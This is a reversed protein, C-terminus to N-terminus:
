KEIAIETETVKTIVGDISAHYRAGLRGEPIDAVLRGKKVKDGPSVVAKAPAGIHRNLAIRVRSTEWVGNESPPRLDYDALGLRATLREAPIGRFRRQPDPELESRTHPNKIAAEKLRRKFEKFIVRPSLAMPCAWLDCAGCECCLWASTITKTDLDRDYNIVRMIKHPELSHGQLHRPCFDTCYRCVECAAKSIKIETSLPRRMRLAHSHNKPLVFLGGMTKTTVEDMDTTIRGMMPGNVLIVYDDVKPRLKPIIESFPTGIPISAIRPTDVAGGLTVTRETVPKGSQADSLHVLTGVNMVLVDVMPPIGGEPVIRGTAEYVLFQEDGAPYVNDLELTEIGEAQGVHDRIAELARKYKKKVGIVARVKEERAQEFWAIVARLASIMEGTRTEMTQQDGHMLPECEAGNVIVTGTAKELKVHTPFGAGGAGIIGAERALEPLGAM